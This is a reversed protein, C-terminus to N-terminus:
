CPVAESVESISGAESVPTSAPLAGAALRQLELVVPPPAISSSDAPSSAASRAAAFPTALRREPRREPGHQRCPSAHTRSRGAQLGRRITSREDDNLLRGRRQVDYLLREKEAQLQENREEVQRKEEELRRKDEDIAELREKEEDRLLRDTCLKDAYSRRLYIEVAHAIAYSLIQGGIGSLELVFYDNCLEIVLLSRVPLLLILATKHAFAMGHSGNIISNAIALFPVLYEGEGHKKGDHDNLCAFDMGMSTCAFDLSVVLPGVFTVFFSVM